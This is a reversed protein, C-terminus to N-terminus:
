LNEAIKKFVDGREEFNSFMDYSAAAPSLLCIHDHLTNETIIAPLENYDQILFLKQDKLNGDSKLDNMIRKGADGSFILNNVGSFPLFSILGHYDIGRDKGGLILTDVKKLTKLANITAEPITAISDNYFHIGKFLGLYEMRHRLGTFSNIADLISPDPINIIKCVCIAAMVNMLNHDGALSKRKSVDFASEQNTTIFKILGDKGLSAGNILNNILSYSLKNNETKLKDVLKKIIPDDGNMICWDNDKQFKAINLKALYYANLDDYHDLHEEFLNLLVAIHPSNSVDQLQHSSLEFVIWTDEDINEILDFPPVGINGVFVVNKSYASLIHNILSSTTSKGKTGTVGIIQKSFLKMFLDAQSIIKHENTKGRLIKKSIGPAKIILDYENLKELYDKGLYLKINSDIDLNLTELLKDNQDAIAIQTAPIHKSILRFTSIGEKGFGLILVRKNKLIKLLNKIM